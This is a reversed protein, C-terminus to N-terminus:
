LSLIDAFHHMDNATKQKNQNRTVAAKVTEDWEKWSYEWTQWNHKPLASVQQRTM